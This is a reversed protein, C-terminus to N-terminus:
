PSPGDHEVHRPRSWRPRRRTPRATLRSEIVEHREIVTSGFAQLIAATPLALVAGVPGVLAAGAIVTGFAVAPHLEMTRATIRPALLYNEVQQYVVIFALVMGGDPADNLLAVVVPLVGALYAGIM